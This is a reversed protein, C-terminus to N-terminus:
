AYFYDEPAYGYEYSAGTDAEGIYPDPPPTREVATIDWQENPVMWEAQGTGATRYFFPREKDATQQRPYMDYHREQGSYIKLKQGVVRSAIPSRGEDTNRMVARRNDQTKYRQTMSTQIEYQSPDSPKANSPDGKPKNRWGETVTETPPNVFFDQFIRHAGDRTARFAQNVMGPATWPPMNDSHIRVPSDQPAVDWAPRQGYYVYTEISDEPAYGWKNPSIIEDPIAEWPATVEAVPGGPQPRGELPRTPQLRAPPSGYYMHVPNIGTGWVTAGSYPQAYQRAYAGTFPLAM